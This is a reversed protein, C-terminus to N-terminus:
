PVWFYANGINCAPYSSSAFPIDGNLDTPCVLPRTGTKEFIINSDGTWGVKIRLTWTTETQLTYVMIGVDRCDGYLHNYVWICGSVIANCQFSGDLYGCNNCSGNTINSLTVAVYNPLYGRDCMSCINVPCCCTPGMAVQGNSAFLVKGTDKKFMVPM